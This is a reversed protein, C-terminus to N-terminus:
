FKKFEKINKVPIDGGSIIHIYKIKPNEIVKRLCFLIALLHNYSGWNIKYRKYISVNSNFKLDNININSKKDIHIIVKFEKQFFNILRQLYKTDKYASIVVAQM